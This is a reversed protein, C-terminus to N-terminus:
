PMMVQHLVLLGLLSTLASTKRRVINLHAQQKSQCLIVVQKSTSPFHLEVEMDETSAYVGAGTSKGDVFVRAVEGTRILGDGLSM